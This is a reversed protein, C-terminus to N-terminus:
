YSRRHILEKCFTFGSNSLRVICLHGNNRAIPLMRYGHKKWKKRGESMKNMWKTWWCQPIHMRHWTSSFSLTLLLKSMSSTTVIGHHCCSYAAIPICFFSHPTWGRSSIPPVSLSGLPFLAHTRDHFFLSADWLPIHYIYPNIRYSLTM